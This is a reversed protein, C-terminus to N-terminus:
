FPSPPLIDVGLQEHVMLALIGMQAARGQNLEQARLKDQAEQTKAGAIFGVPFSSASFDGPFSGEKQKWGGLELAAIFILIQALGEKPVADLAAFGGPISDFTTGKLDIEGALRVNAWTTTLYGVVALMAIRGHKIEVYRLRDFRAQDAEALLGLPDWFGLPPQVGLEASFDGGASKVVPAPAAKKAPAAAKKAPAPAAKKAPAAAAKKAPPKVASLATTSSPQQQQVFASAGAVLSVLVALKM